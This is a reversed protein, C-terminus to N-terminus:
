NTPAINLSIMFPILLWSPPSMFPTEFINLPLKTSINLDFASPKNPKAFAKLQSKGSALKPDFVFPHIIPAPGLFIFKSFIASLM